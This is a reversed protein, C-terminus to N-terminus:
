FAGIDNATGRNIIQPPNTNASANYRVFNDHGTVVIARVTGEVRMRNHSGNVRVERPAGRLTYNCRSGNVVVINGQCDIVATVRDRNLIRDAQPRAPPRLPPPPASTNITVILSARGTIAREMTVTVMWENRTAQLVRRASTRQVPTIAFGQATLNSAVQEFINDPDSTLVYVQQSDTTSQIAVGPVGSLWQLDPPPSALAARNSLAALVLVFLFFRGHLM